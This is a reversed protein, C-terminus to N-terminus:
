VGNRVQKTPDPYYDKKLIMLTRRWDLERYCELSCVRGDYRTSMTWVIEKQCIQCKVTVM